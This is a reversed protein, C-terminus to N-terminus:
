AICPTLVFSNRGDTLVHSFNSGLNVRAALSDGGTDAEVVVFNRQNLVVGMGCAVCIQPRATDCIEALDM